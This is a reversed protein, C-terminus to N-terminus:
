DSNGRSNMPHHVTAALVLTPLTPLLPSSKGYAHLLGLSCSMGDMCNDPGGQERQDLPIQKWRVM